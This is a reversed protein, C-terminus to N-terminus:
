DEINKVFRRDMLFLTQRKVHGPEGLTDAPWMLHALGMQHIIISLANQDSRASFFAYPDKAANYWADIIPATTPNTLDIGFIAASCSWIHRAEEMTINFYNCSDSNMYIGVDHSNSQVFYGRDKILNFIMNLDAYPLISADLWLVRKYGLRKMERISSVKFAFPVGALVLDGEEMNPWGGIRYYVHGRFTSNVIKHFLRKLGRPYNRNFSSYLVICNEHEASSCNVAKWGAEPKEHQSTGIIKFKKPIFATDLMRDVIPRYTTSLKSQLYLLDEVTPAYISSINQYEDIIPDLTSSLLLRFFLFSLFLYYKM